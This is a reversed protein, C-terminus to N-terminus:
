SYVVIKTNQIAKFNLTFSLSSDFLVDQGTMLEAMRDFIFRIKDSSNFDTANDPFSGNDGAKTCNDQQRYDIFIPTGADIDTHVSIVTKRCGFAVGPGGTDPDIIGAHQLSEEVMQDSIRLKQVEGDLYYEFLGEAILGNIIHQLAEDTDLKNTQLNSVDLLLNTSNLQLSSIDNLAQSLANGLDNIAQTQLENSDSLAQLSDQLTNISEGQSLDSQELSVLRNEIDAPVGGSNSPSSIRIVMGGDVREGLYASTLPTGAKYNTQLYLSSVGAQGPLLNNQWYGSLQLRYSNPKVEIVVGIPESNTKKFKSNLWEGIQFGHNIDNRDLVIERSIAKLITGVNNLAAFLLMDPTRIFLEGDGKWKLPLYKGIRQSHRHGIM